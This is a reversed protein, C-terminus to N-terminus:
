VDINKLQLHPMILETEGDSVVIEKYPSAVSIQYGQEFQLGIVTFYDAITCANKEEKLVEFCWQYFDDVPLERELKEKYYAKDFLWMEEESYEETIIIDEERRFQRFYEKTNEYMFPSYLNDRTPTYLAPPAIEHYCRGNTLYYHFGRLYESETKIREILPLLENTLVVSQHNLEKVVQRLQHYLKEFQLRIGEDAYEFRRVNAYKSIALLENCISQSHNVDLILNLPQIYNEIWYRAKRIKEEYGLRAPNAKLERSERLLSYTNSKVNNTFRNIEKSLAEIRDLLINKDAQIGEKIRLFLSRISYGYKEIEEPLLPRFEQLVFEFLSYVVENLLYDGNQDVLMRYEFLPKEIDNPYDNLVNRLQERSIFENKVQWDFLEKLLTYHNAIFQIISKPERIM